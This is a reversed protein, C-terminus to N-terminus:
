DMLILKKLFIPFKVASKVLLIPSFEATTRSSQALCNARQGLLYRFSCKHFVHSGPLSGPCVDHRKGVNFMILAAAFESCYPLVDDGITATSTRHQLKIFRIKITAASPSGAM